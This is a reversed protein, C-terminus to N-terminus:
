HESTQKATVPACPQRPCIRNEPINLREWFGHGRFLWPTLAYLQEESLEKTKLSCLVTPLMNSQGSTPNKFQLLLLDQAMSRFCVLFVGPLPSSLFAAQLEARLQSRSWSHSNIGACNAMQLAPLAEGSQWLCHNDPQMFSARGM